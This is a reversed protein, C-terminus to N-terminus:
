VICPQPYDDYYVLLRFCRRHVHILWTNMFGETSEVDVEHFEDPASAISRRSSAWNMPNMHHAYVTLGGM